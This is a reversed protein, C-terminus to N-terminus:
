LSENVAVLFKKTLETHTFARLSLLQPSQSKPKIFLPYLLPLIQIRTLDPQEEAKDMLQRRAICQAAHEFM